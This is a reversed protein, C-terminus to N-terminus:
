RGRLSASLPSLAVSTEAVAVWPLQAAGDPPETVQLRPVMFLLLLTCTVIMAVGFSVPVSLLVAVTVLPEVSGFVALLTAVADSVTM